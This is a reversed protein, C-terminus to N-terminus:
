MILDWSHTKHNKKFLLRRNKTSDFSAHLFVWDEKEWESYIPLSKLAEFLIKISVNM